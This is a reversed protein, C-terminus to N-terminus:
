KPEGDAISYITVGKRNKDRTIERGKKRLGTLAAHISATKWGTAEVLQALTAGSKRSVLKLIADSKTTKIPM